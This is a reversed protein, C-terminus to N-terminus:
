EGWPDAGSLWQMIGDGGENKRPVWQPLNSFLQEPIPNLAYPNHYIYLQRNYSSISFRERYLAVASVQRNLLNGKVLTNFAGNWARSEGIIAGSERSLHVQRDGYLATLATERDLPFETRPWVAIVYPITMEGYKGAKAGVRRRIRRHTTVVKAEPSGWAQVVSGTEEQNADMVEFDIVVSHGNFVTEFTLTKPLQIDTASLKDVEGALFDHVTDLPFDAPLHTAPQAWLFADGSVDHVADVLERLRQEQAQYEESELALTAELFFNCLDHAIEFEPHTSINPLVPHPIVKGGKSDLLSYLFLEFCASYFGSETYSRLRQKLDNKDKGRPYKSLYDRLERRYKVAIPEKGHLIVEGPKVSYYRENNM